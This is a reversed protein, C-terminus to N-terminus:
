LVYKSNISPFNAAIVEQNVEEAEEHLSEISFIDGASKRRKSMIISRFSFVPVSVTEVDTLPKLMQQM